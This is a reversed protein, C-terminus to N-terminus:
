NKDVIQKEKDKDINKKKNKQELRIIFSKQTWTKQKRNGQGKEGGYNM